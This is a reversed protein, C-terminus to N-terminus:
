SDSPRVQDRDRFRWMVILLTTTVMAAVVNAVILPVDSNAIGYALWLLFGVLLILVWGVSVGESTRDRIIVRVQLLPALGMLLGWFTTVYALVTSM